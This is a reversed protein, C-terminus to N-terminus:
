SYFSLHNDSPLELNTPRQSTIGSYNLPPLNTKFSVKEDIPAAYSIRKTNIRPKIM